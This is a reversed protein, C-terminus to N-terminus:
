RKSASLFTVGKMKKSGCGHGSAFLAMQGCDDASESLTTIKQPAAAGTQQPNREVYGWAAVIGILSFALILRIRAEPGSDKLRGMM